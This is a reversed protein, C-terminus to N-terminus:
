IVSPRGTTTCEIHIHQPPTSYSATTPHRDVRHMSFLMRANMRRRVFKAETCQQERQSSMIFLVFQQHTYKDWHPHLPHYIPHVAYRVFSLRRHWIRQMIDSQYSSPYWTSWDLPLQSKYGQKTVRANRSRTRM